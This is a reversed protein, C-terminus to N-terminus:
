NNEIKRKIQNYFSDIAQQHVQRLSRGTVEMIELVKDFHQTGEQYGLKYHGIEEGQFRSADENEGSYGEAFGCDFVARLRKQKESLLSM